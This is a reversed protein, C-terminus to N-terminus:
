YSITFDLIIHVSAIGKLSIAKINRIDYNRLFEAFYTNNIPGLLVWGLRLTETKRITLIETNKQPLQVSM